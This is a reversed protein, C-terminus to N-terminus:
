RSRGLFGRPSAAVGPATRSAGQHGPMVSSGKWLDGDRPKFEAVSGTFTDVENGEDDTILVAGWAGGDSLEIVEAMFTGFVEDSLIWKQGLIFELM